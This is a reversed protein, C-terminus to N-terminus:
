SVSLLAAARKEWSYEKVKARATQAHMEAERPHALVKELADTFADPNDPTAFTASADDLVERLAPVDSAVIPTGSLMYEFLKMPSTFRAADEDRGSNPLVLIDAAKLYLPVKEYAVHGVVEVHESGWRDKFAVVEHPAGGVFVFFANPMKAAAEALIAAGKRPYLHGAYLVIKKDQPLNTRRRAEGQEPIGDFLHEDVADPALVMNEEPVGSNKYAEWLGHSIVVVREASRAVLSSLFTPKKHAEFWFTRGLLIYQFLVLPDRSYVADVDWFSPLWRVRESFWITSLLFGLAGFHLFDPISLTTMPFRTKVGYYLFPDEPSKFRRTPVVLEVTAGARSLAECTKMIQLGYARPTPIRANVIYLLKM